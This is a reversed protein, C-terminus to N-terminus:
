FKKEHGNGDGSPTTALQLTDLGYRQGLAVHQLVLMIYFRRVGSEVRERIGVSSPPGKIPRRALAELLCNRELAVIVATAPIM